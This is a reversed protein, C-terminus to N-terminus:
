NLVGSTPQMMTKWMLAGVIPPILLPLVLTSRFFRQLRTPIDLLSAVGISLPIQIALVLATYVLTVGLSTLFVDDTFLNVYNNLGIFEVDQRYLKENTFSTAVGLLFPYLVGILLLLAPLFMLTYALNSQRNNGIRTQLRSGSSIPKSSASSTM